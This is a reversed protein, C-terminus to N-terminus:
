YCISIIIEGIVAAKSIQEPGYLQDAYRNLLSYGEKVCVDEHTNCTGLFGITGPITDLRHRKSPALYFSKKRKTNKGM